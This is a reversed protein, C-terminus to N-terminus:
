STGLAVPFPRQCYVVSILLAVPEDQKSTPGVALAAQLRGLLEPLPEKLLRAISHLALLRRKPVHPNRFELSLPGEAQRDTIRGGLARGTDGAARGLLELGGGTSCLAPPM